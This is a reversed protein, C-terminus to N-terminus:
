TAITWGRQGRRVDLEVPPRGPAPVALVHATPWQAGQVSVVLHRDVVALGPAWVGALWGAPLGARVRRASASGASEVEGWGDGDYLRVGVQGADIGLWQAVAPALRGALAATMTPRVRARDAAHQGDASWAHAVAGSLRLQFAPGLALLRLLGVSAPEEPQHGPWGASARWTAMRGPSHGSWGASAFSGGGSSGLRAQHRLLAALAPRGFPGGPWGAHSVLEDVVSHTITLTDKASRPGIALVRLDDGHTGWARVLDVCPTAAGGLAALVSEGEADAHDLALLAGEAWGVRHQDRGCANSAEAPGFAAWWPATV